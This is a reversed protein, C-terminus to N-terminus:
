PRSWFQALIIYLIMLTAKWSELCSSLRAQSWHALATCVSLFISIFCINQVKSFIFQLFFIFQVSSFIFLKFLQYSTSLDGTWNWELSLKTLIHTLLILYRSLFIYFDLVPFNLLFTQAMICKLSRLPVETSWMYKGMFTRLIKSLHECGKM